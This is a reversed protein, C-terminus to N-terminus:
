IGLAATTLEKQKQGLLSTIKKVDANDQPLNTLQQLLSKAKSNLEIVQQTKSPDVQAIQQSLDNVAASIAALEKDVPDLAFDQVVQRVIDRENKEPTVWLSNALIALDKRVVVDRGDLTAVAKLLSLSQRFRRDSPRVGEQKLTDRIDRLAILADQPVTTMMEAQFQLQELEQLTITPRQAPCSGKLMAVFNNGDAIYNLEFRLIFRDFLAELGEGEEPWENSAGVLSALPSQVIGGNNYFLRENALTLLANLIASNGKFIEDVFGVHAEPLKGKTNRKYTDNELAKLSVPGFLEEPTSFRTLLWQFYNTGTICKALDAVVASKATGPVGVLLVHQRAVLAALLGDIIEERELYQTGLFNKIDNVIDNVKNLM